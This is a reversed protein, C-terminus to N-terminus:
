TSYIQTNHMQATPKATVSENLANALIDVGDLDLLGLLLLESPRLSPLALWM